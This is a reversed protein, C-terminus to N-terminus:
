EICVAAGNSCKVEFVMRLARSVLPKTVHVYGVDLHMTVARVPFLLNFVLFPFIYEYELKSRV